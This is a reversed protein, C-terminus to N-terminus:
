SPARPARTVSACTAATPVNPDIAMEPVLSVGVGAAVMGLLSSFQGSEFAIRPTIRAHTCAAFSLDRFCHGDRLM